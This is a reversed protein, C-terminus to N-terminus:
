IIFFLFYACSEIHGIGIGLLLGKGLLRAALVLAIFSLHALLM